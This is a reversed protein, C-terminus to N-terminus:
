MKHSKAVKVISIGAVKYQSRKAVVGFVVQSKERHDSRDTLKCVVEVDMESTIAIL